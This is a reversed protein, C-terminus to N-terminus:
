LSRVRMKDNSVIVIKENPQEKELLVLARMTVARLEAITLGKFRLIVRGATDALPYSLLNSFDLDMTILTLGMKNSARFIILDSKGALESKAASLSGPYKKVILDALSQPINEDVLLRLCASRM